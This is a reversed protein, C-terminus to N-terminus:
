RVPQVDLIRGRPILGTLIVPEDTTSTAINGAADTVDLRLHVRDPVQSDPKWAYRFHNPIGDGILTWPGDRGTSWSLRVPGNRLMADSAEWQIVLNGAEAGRGYPAGSLRAVPPDLDIAIWLDADDGRAPARGALGDSTHFVIRFGFLGATNMEVPFPSENDTDEAWATWTQGQDSTSWLVVKSIQGPDLSELSYDLRFRRSNVYRISGMRDSGSHLAEGHTTRGAGGGDAAEGTQLAQGPGPPQPVMSVPRAMVSQPDRQPQMGPQGADRDALHPSSPEQEGQLWPRYDPAEPQGSAIAPVRGSGGASTSNWAISPAGGPSTVPPPASTIQGTAGYLQPQTGQDPAPLGADDVVPRQVALGQPGPSQTTSSVEFLGSSQGPLNGNASQLGPASQGPQGARPGNFPLAIQREEIAQNGAIDSVALQVLVEASRPEPWWAYQDAFVDDVPEAVPQYPVSLWENGSDETAILPRFSIRTAQPDLHEDEARWRCTIRGSADTQIRFDLVPQVTDVIIKLEPRMAGAPHLQRDRDLTRIAFWYEGDGRSEFPFETARSPQRSHFSWSQGRDRSMYLQVEVYREGPDTVSFPIGFARLNTGIRREAGTGPELEGTRAQGIALSVLLWCVTGFSIM